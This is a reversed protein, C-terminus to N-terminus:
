GRRARRLLEETVEDAERRWAEVKEPTAQLKGRRARGLKSMLFRNRHQLGETTMTAYDRAM